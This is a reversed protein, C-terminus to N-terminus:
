WETDPEKQEMLVKNGYFDIQGLFEKGMEHPDHMLTLQILQLGDLLARCHNKVNLDKMKKSIKKDLEKIHPSVVAALNATPEDKSITIAHIINRILHFGEKALLSVEPIIKNSHKESLEIFKTLPPVIAEDFERVAKHVRAVKKAGSSPTSAATSDGGELRGESGEFRNLLGEFRNLLEDFRNMKIKNIVLRSSKRSIVGM